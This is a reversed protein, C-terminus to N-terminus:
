RATTSTSYWFHAHHTTRPIKAMNQKSRPPSAILARLLEMLSASMSKMTHLLLAKKRQNLTSISNVIAPLDAKKYKADLIRMACKASACVHAPANAKDVGNQLQDTMLDKNNSLDKNSEVQQM